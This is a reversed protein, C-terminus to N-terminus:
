SKKREWDGEDILEATLIAAGAWLNLTASMTHSLRIVEIQFLLLPSITIYLRQSGEAAALDLERLNLHGTQHRDTFSVSGVLGQLTGTDSTTQVHTRDIRQWLTPSLALLTWCGNLSSDQNLGQNGETSLHGPGAAVDEGGLVVGRSGNSSSTDGDEGPLTLSLLLVVPTQLLLEVGELISLLEVEDEVVTTVQGGEDVGLVGLHQLVAVTDRLLGGGTDVVEVTHELLALEQDRGDVDVVGNGLGLEVVQVSATLREDVTDLTGGIDHDGTLDGDDSTETINALATGLSQVAHTSADQNGLDVGDVSELSSDGAELNGGHLLSSRETLDEDGGSTATVDEDGLM